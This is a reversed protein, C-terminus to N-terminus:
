VMRPALLAAMGRYLDVVKGDSLIGNAMNDLVPDHILDPSGPRTQQRHLRLSMLVQQRDLSRLRVLRQVVVHQSSACSSRKLELRKKEQQLAATLLAVDSMGPALELTLLAPIASLSPRPSAQSLSLAFCSSLPYPWAHDTCQSTHTHTLPHSCSRVQQHGAMHDYTRQLRALTRSEVADKVDGTIACIGSHSSGSGRKAQQLQQRVAALETSRQTVLSGLMVAHHDYAATELCLRQYESQVQLREAQLTRIAARAEAEQQMRKAVLLVQEHHLIAHLLM